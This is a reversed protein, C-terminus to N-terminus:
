DHVNAQFSHSPRSAENRVVLYNTKSYGPSDCWPGHNLKIPIPKNCIAGTPPVGKKYRSYVKLTVDGSTRHETGANCPEDGEDSHARLVYTDCPPTSTPFPPRFTFLPGTTTEGPATGSFRKRSSVGYPPLAALPPVNKVCVDEDDGGSMSFQWENTGGLTYEFHLTQGDVVASNYLVHVESKQGVTTESDGHKPDSTRIVVSPQKTYGVPCCGVPPDPPAEKPDDAAGALIAPTALLIVALSRIVPKM